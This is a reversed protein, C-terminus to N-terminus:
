PASAPLASRHRARAAPAPADADPRPEVPPIAMAPIPEEAPAVIPEPLAQAIPVEPLEDPQLMNGRIADDLDHNIYAIGDAM